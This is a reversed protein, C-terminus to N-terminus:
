TSPKSGKLVRRHDCIPPNHHGDSPAEEKEPREYGHQHPPNPQSPPLSRGVRRLQSGLGCAFVGPTGHVGECPPPTVAQARM